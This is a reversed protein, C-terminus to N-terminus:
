LVSENASLARRVVEVLNQALKADKIIIYDADTARHRAAALTKNSTILIARTNRSGSNSLKIAGILAAGSLVPIENSTIILDFSETLARRLAFVGDSMVVAQVPLTSLIKLYISTELKSNDILLVTFQKRALRKRLKKLQEEVQPFSENGAQIQGAAVRLLDIYNLSTTIFAPTYKSGGETTNLLDELQHCITTVIQLGHTGGNGKLSHVIRYLENFPESDAGNKELGVLLNELRDLREPLEELFSNRLQLLMKQFADANVTNKNASM